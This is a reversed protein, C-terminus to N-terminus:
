VGEQQGQQEHGSESYQEGLNHFTDGRKLAGRHRCVNRNVPTAGHGNSDARSSGHRDFTTMGEGAGSGVEM